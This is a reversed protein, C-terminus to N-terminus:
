LNKGKSLRDNIANANETFSIKKKFPPIVFSFLTKGEGNSIAFDGLM